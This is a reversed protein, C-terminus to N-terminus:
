RTGHGGRRRARGAGQRLPPTAGILLPRRGAPLRALEANAREEQTVAPRNRLVDRQRGRGRLRETLVRDLKPLRADRQDGDLRDEPERLRGIALPGLVRRQGELGSAPEREGLGLGCAVHRRRELGVHSLGPDRRVIGMVGLDFLQGLLTKSFKAHEDMERVLPRVQADAFDRVSDRFIIEDESLLTLPQAYAATEETM